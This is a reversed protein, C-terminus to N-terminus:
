SAIDGGLGRRKPDRKEGWYSEILGEEELNHLLPYLSRMSLVLRGGIM